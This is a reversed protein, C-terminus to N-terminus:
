DRDRYGRDQYKRLREPLARNRAVRDKITKANKLDKLQDTKRADRAADRRLWAIAVGAAAMILGWLAIPIERAWRM